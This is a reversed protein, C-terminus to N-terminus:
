PVLCKWGTRFQYDIATAKNGYYAKCIGTATKRAFPNFKVARCIKVQKAQTCDITKVTGSAANAPAFTIMSTAVFSLAFLTKNIM